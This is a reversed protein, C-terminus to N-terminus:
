IVSDRIRELLNNIDKEIEVNSVRILNIGEDEILNQRLEDYDRQRKHVMGDIEIALRVQHCYLDVIFGEIVHQRRFKLNM